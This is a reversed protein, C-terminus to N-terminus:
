PEIAVQQVAGTAFRAMLQTKGAGNDKAYLIVDNTAPATPDSIETFKIGSLPFNVQGNITMQNSSVSSTEMQYVDENVAFYRELSGSNLYEYNFASGTLASIQAATPLTWFDLAGGGSVPFKSTPSGIYPSYNDKQRIVVNQNDDTAESAFHPYTFINPRAHNIFVSGHNVVILRNNRIGNLQTSDTIWRGNDIFVNAGGAGTNQTTDVLCQGCYEVAVWDVAALDTAFTGSTHDTVCRYLVSTESVFDGRVYATSTLWASGVNPSTQNTEVHCDTFHFNTMAYSGAALQREIHWGEWANEEFHCSNFSTNGGEKLYAGRKTNLKFHCHWFSNSRNGGGSTAGGEQILGDANFMARCNYFAVGQANVNHIGAVTSGECRVNRVEGQCALNSGTDSGLRLGYSGTATATGTAYGSIAIDELVFGLTSKSIGTNIKVAADSGVYRITTCLAGFSDGYAQGMGEGYIRIPGNVVLSTTGTYYEGARIRLSREGYNCANIADQVAMSVDYAGTGNVVDTREAATLYDFVDIERQNVEKQTTDEAGTGGQNYTGECRILRGTTTDTLKITLDSDDTATSSADWMYRTSGTSPNSSLSLFVVDGESLNEGSLARLATLSTFVFHGTNKQIQRSM